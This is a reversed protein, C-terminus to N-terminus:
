APAPGAGGGLMEQVREAVRAAIRECRAVQGGEIYREVDARSSFTCGTIASCRISGLEARFWRALDKGRNVSKNFANLRDALADGGLIMTAILRAVRPRSDEIEGKRLGLAMVGAALASCTAGKFLTGGVFGSTAELLEPTVPVSGRLVDHACHFGREAFHSWLVLYSERAELPIAGAADDSVTRALLEPARRIARVCRRMLRDDGRIAKCSTARNCELFRDCYAHGQDFIVPLGRDTTGACRLGLMLLPVTVAGCEGGTNGIGGPLGASLRILWEGEVRTLEALTRAVTPACHGMRLLNSTSRRRYHRAAEGGADMEMGWRNPRCGDTFPDIEM